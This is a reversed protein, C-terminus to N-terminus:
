MVVNAWAPLGSLTERIKRQHFSYMTEDQTYKNPVQLLSITDDADSFWHKTPQSWYSSGKPRESFGVFHIGESTIKYQYCLEGTAPSPEYRDSWRVNKCELTELDHYFSVILANRTVHERLMPHKDLRELVLLAKNLRGILKTISPTTKEM